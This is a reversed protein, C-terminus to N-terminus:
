NGESRTQNNSNRAFKKLAISHIQETEKARDTITSLMREEPTMSYETWWGPHTLVQLIPYEHQELVTRLEQYRWVGFSDSVYAVEERFYTSYVNVLGAITDSNYNQMIDATTNHFSFVTVPQRTVKQLITAEEMILSALKERENSKYFHTDFHLGVQHGMEVLTRIQNATTHDWFHYFSAHLHVFYTSFIGEEAEIEALKIAQKPSFDIDHRWYVVPETNIENTKYDYFVFRYHEKALKILYRYDDYTFPSPKSKSNIALKSKEKM